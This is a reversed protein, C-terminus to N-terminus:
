ELLHSPYFPRDIGVGIWRTMVLPTRQGVSSDNGLRFCCSKGPYRDMLGRAIGALISSDGSFEWILVQKQAPVYGFFGSHEGLRYRYFDGGQYKNETVSYDLASRDWELYANGFAEKRMSVLEESTIQSLLPAATVAVRDLVLRKAFGQTSYGRKQYFGFLSHTAPALACLHYGREGCLRYAADLLATSVGQGRHERGTAVAYLYACRYSVSGFTLRCPLLFLMGCLADEQLYLLTNQLEARHQLFLDAYGSPGGFAEMWLAKVAPMWQETATTIM